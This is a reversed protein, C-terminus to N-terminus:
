GASARSDWSLQNGKVHLQVVEDMIDLTYINRGRSIRISSGVM